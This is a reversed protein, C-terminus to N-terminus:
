KPLKYVLETNLLARIIQSFSSPANAIEKLWWASNEM